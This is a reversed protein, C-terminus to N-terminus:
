FKNKLRARELQAIKHELAGCLHLDGGALAEQLSRKLTHLKFDELVRDFDKPAIPSFKVKLFGLAGVDGLLINKFEEQMRFDHASLCKSATFRFEPHELMARLIRGELFYAGRKLEKHKNSVQEVRNKLDEQVIQPSIKKLTQLCAVKLFPPYREVLHCLFRYNHDKQMPTLGARLLLKCFYAWGESKIMPPKVGLALAEGMDKCGKITLVGVHAYGRKFCLSLARKLGELGASDGDLCFLIECELSALMDLHEQNFSAGMCCVVNPYGFAEFGMVDFVGECIIVQRRNNIHHRARPYNWLLAHKVLGRTHLYKVGMPALLRGSFGILKAFRNHIPFVIRGSLVCGRDVNSVLGSEKLQTTSFQKLLDRNVSSSCYGLEFRTILEASMGRQELYKWADEQERLAQVMLVHAHELVKLEPQPAPAAKDEELVFDYMRAVEQVAERFELGLKEQLFNFADGSVGCGYCTWNNRAPNVMFSPTKEEHFPCHCRFYAGCRRLTLYKELVDVVRVRARLAELNKIM